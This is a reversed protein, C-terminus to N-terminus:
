APERQMRINGFRDRRATWAPPVWTSSSYGELLAPSNAFTGYLNPIFKFVDQITELIPRSNEPASELSLSSFLPTPTSM